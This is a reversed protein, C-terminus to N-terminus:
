EYLLPTIEDSEVNEANYWVAGTDIDEVSEGKAAKVALEVAKYGISVPDQTVSGLLQGKKIADIQIAGSDFGVAIIKGEGIKGGVANDANIISKAGFENSGFIGVLDEKNLLTQAQTQGEADTVQAPVALDIIVVAEKESVGNAFKDNGVIAVKDGVNELGKALEEMKEIFGATRDSISASNVEQSVVGIRAPSEVTAAELKEKIEPFMKEAGIAAAAKNDTSATAAVTGEPANPVGSDFGIIPINSSKAQELLDVSAQTDLAAFAIANPQKNIANAFMQVQAQVATENEPGQFTIKAGLDEAAKEAGLNVSKWFQHQFGKAVVEVVIPEDSETQKGEEKENVEGVEKDPEAPKEENGKGGCATILMLMALLLGLIRTRKVKM